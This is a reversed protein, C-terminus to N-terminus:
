NKELHFLFGISTQFGQMTNKYASPSNEFSAVLNKYGVLVELGVASNFFVETGAMISLTNYKGQPKDGSFLKNIGVQYSIDTLINFQRDTNLFYYRAFPGIAFKLENAIAGGSTEGKYTSFYPRLGGAFKDAFFYGVNASLDISTFKGTFDPNPPPATYSQNYSFLSGNGGFLWTGKNLQANAKTFQTTVILLLIYKM